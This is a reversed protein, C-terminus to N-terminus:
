GKVHKLLNNIILALQARTVPDQPAYRANAYGGMINLKALNEIADYAFHDKPVDNYRTESVVKVEEKTYKHGIYKCYAEVVSEAYKKWDRKLQTVDDKKSDLFGYEVIITEVSGTMRHMFYYNGGSDNKRTFIRRLNQGEKTLADAVLKAFTEKSEISRIIEHGDGGGANIHNSICHKAGSRKVLNTRAVSDLGVDTSRTLAVDVGLEKFRKFQYLTIDLVMNKEIIGNGTAGPDSGGHGADLILQTM